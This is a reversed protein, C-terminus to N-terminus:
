LDTPQGLAARGRHPDHGGPPYHEQEEIHRRFWEWAAQRTMGLADGIQDWTAGEERAQQMVIWRWGTLLTVIKLNARLSDLASIDGLEALATRAAEAAQENGAGSSETLVKTWMQRDAAANWLELLRTLSPSSLVAEVDMDTLNAQCRQLTLLAQCAWSRYASM